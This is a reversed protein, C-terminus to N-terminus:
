QKIYALIAVILAACSIINSIIIPIWFRLRENKYANLADRGLETIVWKDVSPFNGLGGLNMTKHSYPAIWAQNRLQEFREGDNKGPTRPTCYSKLLNYNKPSLMVDCGKRTIVGVWLTTLPYM